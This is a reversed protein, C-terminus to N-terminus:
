AARKLDRVRDHAARVEALQGAVLPQVADPLGGTVAAEYARVASDEGTEAAAVVAADDEGSVASKVNMWGRHLAGAVSGSRQPEGGLRQVAAQLESAFHARQDAYQRFLRKLEASRVSEAATRFGHEGDRCTEILHNLTAMADDERSM